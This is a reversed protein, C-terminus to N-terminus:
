KDFTIKSFIRINRHSTRNIKLLVYEKTFWPLLPRRGFSTRSHFVNIFSQRGPGSAIDINTHHPRHPRSLGGEDLPDHLLQHDGIDLVRVPRLPGPILQGLAAGAPGDHSRFRFKHRLFRHLDRRVARGPEPDPHDIGHAIHHVARHAGLFVTNGPHDSRGPVVPLDGHRFRRLQPCFLHHLLMAGDTQHHRRIPGHRIDGSGIIHRRLAPGNVIHLSRPFGKQHHHIGPFRGGPRGPFHPLIQTRLKPHIGQHRIALRQIRRPDSFQQPFQQIREGHPFQPDMQGPPHIGQFRLM